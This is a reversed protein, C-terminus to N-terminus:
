SESIKLWCGSGQVLAFGSLKKRLQLETKWGTKLRVISFFFTIDSRGLPCCGVVMVGCGGM